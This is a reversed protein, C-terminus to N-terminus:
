LGFDTGESRSVKDTDLSALFVLVEKISSFMGYETKWGGDGEIGIKIGDEGVEYGCRELANKTWLFTYGEGTLTVKQMRYAHQFVKGTKLDYGKFNFIRDLVGNLVLDEPIGEAIGTGDALWLRDATQLALDLEHTALLIGKNTERTLQRLVNMVEVRNNLDLHATPEDLLILSTEQALARAIMVMQMQGDSLENIDRDALDHLHIKNLADDIIRHDNESFSLRWDLYPYRGYAVLDRVCMNMGRIRETLVVSVKRPDIASAGVKGSLPEHLGAITRLLTSKGSGNAGMFCVLEGAKISVNLNEFLVRGKVGSYGITLNNLSLLSDSM